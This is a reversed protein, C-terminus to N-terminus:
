GVRKIPYKKKVRSVWVSLPNRLTASRNLLQHAERLLWRLGNEGDQLYARELFNTVTTIDARGQPTPARLQVFVDEFETLMDAVPDGSLSPPDTASQEAVPDGQSATSVELDPQYAKLMDSLTQWAKTRQKEIAKKTCGINVASDGAVKGSMYDEVVARPLTPLKALADHFAKVINEQDKRDSLAQLYKGQAQHREVDCRIRSGFVM